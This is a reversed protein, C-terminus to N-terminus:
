WRRMEERPLKKTTPLKRNKKKANCNRMKWNLYCQQQEPMRVCLCFVNKCVFSNLNYLFCHTSVQPSSIPECVKKKMVYETQFLTSKDFLIVKPEQAPKEPVVVKPPPLSVVFASRVAETDLAQRRSVIKENKKKEEAEKQTQLDKMAEKGLRQAKERKRTFDAQRAEDYNTNNEQEAKAHASGFQTLCNMVNGEMDIIMERQEKEAQDRLKNELGQLVRKRKERGRERISCAFQAAQERVKFTAIYNKVNSISM